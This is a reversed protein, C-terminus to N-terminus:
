LSSVADGQESSACWYFSWTVCTHSTACASNRGERSPSWARGASYTLPSLVSDVAWTGPSQEGGVPCHATLECNSWHMGLYCASGGVPRRPVPFNRPWIWPEVEKLMRLPLQNWIPFFEEPNLFGVQLLPSSGFEPRNRKTRSGYVQIELSCLSKFWIGSFDIVRETPKSHHSLLGLPLTGRKLICLFLELLCYSVTTTDISYLWFM